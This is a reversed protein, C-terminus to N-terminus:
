TLLHLTPGPMLLCSNSMRKFFPFRYPRHKFAVRLFCAPHDKERPILGALEAARVDFGLVQQQTQKPLILRQGVPEEARVGRHIGDALLDLPVGGNPLLNGRGDIERQAVLALAHQGIARFFGLPEIVLVDAGLVQQQAQQALLFAEGGLDQM